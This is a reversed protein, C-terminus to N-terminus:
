WNRVRREVEQNLAAAVRAYGGSSLHLEDVWDDPTVHDRLNVYVFDNKGADERSAQISRVMDNFRDVLSRVVGWHEEVRVGKSTLTPLMWPGAWTVVISAGRGDPIAHAYGHMFTVCGPSAESVRDVLREIAGRFVTSFMYDAYDARLIPLDSDAHNLYSAFEDGVFDNGGGSFLFVRPKLARVTDIVQAIGPTKRRHISDRETGYVMNELTDGRRAFSEIQYQYNAELCDLLDTVVYFWPLDFWSDGEAVVIRRSAAAAAGLGPRPTIIGRRDRQVLSPRTRRASKIERVQEPTLRDFNLRGAAALALASGKRVPTAARTTAPKKRTTQKAM